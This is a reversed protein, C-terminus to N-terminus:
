ISWNKYAANTRVDEPNDAVDVSHGLEGVPFAASAALWLVVMAAFLKEAIYRAQFAASSWRGARRPPPTRGSGQGVAADAGPAKDDRNDERQVHRIRHTSIATEAM